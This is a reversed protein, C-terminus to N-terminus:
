TGNDMRQDQRHTWAGSHLTTPAPSFIRSKLCWGVESCSSCRRVSPLSNCCPSKISTTIAPWLSNLTKIQIVNHSTHCSRDSVHQVVELQHNEPDRQNRTKGPDAVTVSSLIRGCERTTWEYRIGVKQWWQPSISHPRTRCPNFHSPVTSNWATTHSSEASKQSFVCHWFYNPKERRGKPQPNSKWLRHAKRNGLSQLRARRWTLALREKNGGRRGRACERDLWAPPLRSSTRLKKLSKNLPGFGKSFCVKKQGRDMMLDALRLRRWPRRGPRLGRDPQSNPVTVSAPWLNRM